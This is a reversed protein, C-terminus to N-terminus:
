ISMQRHTERYRQDCLEECFLRACTVDKKNRCIMSTQSFNEGKSNKSTFTLVKREKHMGKIQPLIKVEVIWHEIIWNEVEENQCDLKRFDLKQIVLKRCDM